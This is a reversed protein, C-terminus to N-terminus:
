LFKAALMGCFKGDKYFEVRFIQSQKDLSFRPLIDKKRVIIDDQSEKNDTVLGIVNVRMDHQPLIRFNNQIEVVDGFSVTKFKGDINVKVEKVEKDLEFYQPYIAGVRKNGIHVDYYGKRKIVGGLPHSFEFNNNEKKMPVYRTYFNSQELPIIFNDNIKLTGYELLSAQIAKRTLEIDRTFEIGMVQMLSEISRLQYIVKLDLEKIHKSTEVAIAPKLHTIAFYTLSKQMAEDIEKTETNKVDFSHYDQHLNENLISEMQKTVENLNGFAVDGIHKQDIIYSQGWALPNFISSEWKKRYFGRGDHLNAVFAVEPLTIIQKIRQIADYDKDSKAVYAFKRNMDGYVGRSGKLVSEFNLNPIIYLSGKKITYHKLLLSPAFYGGPEDGHIGGIVLLTPATPTGKKQYFDFDYSIPTAYLSKVFLVVIVIYKLL